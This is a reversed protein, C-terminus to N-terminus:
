STGGHRFVGHALGYRFQRTLDILAGGRVEVKTAIFDDIHQRIHRQVTNRGDIRACIESFVKNWPHVGSRRVCTGECLHSTRTSVATATVRM